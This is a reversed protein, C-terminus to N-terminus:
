QGVETSQVMQHLLNESLCYQCCNILNGMDRLNMVHVRMLKVENSLKNM